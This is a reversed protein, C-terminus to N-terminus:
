LVTSCVKHAVVEIPQPGLWQNGNDQFLKVVVNAAYMQGTLLVNLVDSYEPFNLQLFEKKLTIV